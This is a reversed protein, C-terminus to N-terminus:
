KKMEHIIAKILIRTNKDVLYTISLYSGFSFIVYPVLRSILVFLNSSYELFSDMLFYSIGFCGLSIIFYKLVNSYNLKFSIEKRMLIYSYITFPVQAVLSLIAWFLLQESLTDSIFVLLM